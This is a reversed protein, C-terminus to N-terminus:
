EGKRVFLEDSRPDSDCVTGTEEEVSDLEFEGVIASIKHAHVPFQVIRGLGRRLQGIANVNGVVPVLLCQAVSSQSELDKDNPKNNARRKRSYTHHKAHRRVLGRANIWGRGGCGESSVM